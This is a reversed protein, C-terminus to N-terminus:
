TIIYKKNAKAEVTLRLTDPLEKLNPLLKDLNKTASELALVKLTQDSSFTLERIHGPAHAGIDSENVHGGIIWVRKSSPEKVAAHGRRTYTEHHKCRTWIKEAFRLCAKLTSKM